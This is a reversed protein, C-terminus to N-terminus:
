GHGGGFAKRSAVTDVEVLKAEGSKRGSYELVMAADLGAKRAQAPTIVAKELPKALDVGMLAGLAIVEEAPKTWFERGQGHEVSFGPVSEGRRITAMAQAELGSLRAEIMKAGRRLLRMEHSLAEPTLELPTADDAMEAYDIAAIQAAKCVHRASCHKCAPGVVTRPDNGMAEEAAERMKRVYGTLEGASIAWTRIPGDRHFARPQVIRLVFRWLHPDHDGDILDLIASSEALLQWNEFVEVHGYGYKLDWVYATKSEAHLAWADPTGSCHAHISGAFITEEVHLGGPFLQGPLVSDLYPKLRGFMELDVDPKVEGTTLIQAALAAARTDEEAADTTETEPYQENLLVSGPCQVWRAASSFSLRAHGEAM